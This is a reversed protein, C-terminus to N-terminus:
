QESRHLLHRLKFLENDNRIGLKKYASRKQTSVTSPQRSFKSAIDANTLGELCCRLVEFERATLASHSILDLCPPASLARESELEGLCRFSPDPVVNEIALAIALLIEDLGQQKGVFGHAGAQMALSRTASNSHATLVVVKCRPHRARLIRILNLGDVDHPGLAFDTLVVDAPHQRLGVLLSQSTAHSGVIEISPHSGLQLVLGSRVVSHDDLIALTVAPLLETTM